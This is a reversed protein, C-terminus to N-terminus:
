AGLAQDVLDALAMAILKVIAASLENGGQLSRSAYANGLQYLEGGSFRRLFVLFQHIASGFFDLL